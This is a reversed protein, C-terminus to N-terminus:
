QSHGEGFQPKMPGPPPSFRFLYLRLQGAKEEHIPLVEVSVPARIRMWEEPHFRLKRLRSATAPTPTDLFKQKRLRTACDRPWPEVTPDTGHAGPAPEDWLRVWDGRPPRKAFEAAYRNPM